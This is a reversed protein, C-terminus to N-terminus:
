FHEVSTTWYVCKAMANTSNVFQVLADEATQPLDRAPGFIGQSEFGCRDCRFKVGVPTGNHEVGAHPTWWVPIRQCGALPEDTHTNEDYVLNM